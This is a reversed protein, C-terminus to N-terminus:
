VIIIFFTGWAMRLCTSSPRLIRQVVWKYQHRRIVSAVGRAVKNVSPSALSHGTFYEGARVVRRSETSPVLSKTETM